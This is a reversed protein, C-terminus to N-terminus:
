SLFEQKQNLAQKPNQPGSYSNKLHKARQGGFLYIIESSFALASSNKLPQPLPILETWTDTDSNYKECQSTM